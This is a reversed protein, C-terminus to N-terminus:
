DGEKVDYYKYNYDCQSLKTFWRKDSSFFTNLKLPFFCIYPRSENMVAYNCDFKVHEKEKIQSNEM